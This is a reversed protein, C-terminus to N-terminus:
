KDWNGVLNFKQFTFVFSWAFPLIKCYLFNHPLNFWLPLSTLSYSKGGIGFGYFCCFIKLLYLFRCTYQWILLLRRWTKVVVLFGQFCSFLQSCIPLFFGCSVWPFSKSFIFSPVNLAWLHSISPALFVLPLLGWANSCAGASAAM